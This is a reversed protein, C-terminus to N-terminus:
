QGQKAYKTETVTKAPRWWQMNEVYWDIAGKLGGAFDAHKPVWGLERRLKASDIVYRWDHGLYDRMWDIEKM